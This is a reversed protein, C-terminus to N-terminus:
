ARKKANVQAISDTSFQSLAYVAQRIQSEVLGGLEM